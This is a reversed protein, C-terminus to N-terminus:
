EEEEVKDEVKDEDDIDKSIEKLTEESIYQESFAALREMRVSENIAKTNAKLDKRLGQIEASLAEIAYRFREQETM